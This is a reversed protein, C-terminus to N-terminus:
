KKQKKLFVQVGPPPAQHKYVKNYCYLKKLKLGYLQAIDYMSQGKRVIHAQTSKKPDSSEYFNRKKDLFVYQGVKLDRNKLENFRILKKPNKRYRDAISNIDDGPQVYVVEINNITFIYKTLVVDVSDAVVSSFPDRIRITATTTDEDSLLPDPALSPFLEALEGDNVALLEVTLYDLKYLELREIIAILNKTYTKSTAYGASQLGKAWGKYDRKELEFLIGYRYAKKPNTLFESHAIYSEEASAYVRFCSKVVEDDWVYHTKGTWVDGGCKIGFHNNAVRALESEGVGSELIGQAMKISAPIGTRDMEAIAIHKYKEVYLRAKDDDIDDWEFLPAALINSTNIMLVGLLALIILKM